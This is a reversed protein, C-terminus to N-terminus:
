TIYILQQYILKEEDLLEIIYVGSKLNERSLTFTKNDIKISKILKGEITRIKIKDIYKEGIEIKTKESFPNPYISLENKSTNTVNSINYSFVNSFSSCGYINFGEVIYLGSSTPNIFQSNSNNILTGNLYWNYSSYTSDAGLFLNNQIINPQDPIPYFNLTLDPSQMVCNNHNTVEVNYTGSQYITITDTTENNSWNFNNYTESTYLSVADGICLNSNSNTEIQVNDPISILVSDIFQCYNADTIIAQYNTTIQPYVTVSNNNSIVNNNEIWEIQDVGNPVFRIGENYAGWYTNNRGPSEFARDGINNQIGQVATYCTDKNTTQIEIINSNEYIIIDFNNGGGCGYHPINDFKIILRKNPSTGQTQYTITGGASPNFDEWSSFIANKPTNTNSNPIMTAGYSTPQGADFSIWGNSGIYFEDFQQGFFYFDFGIQFPGQVDDDGLSVNNIPFLFSMIPPSHNINEFNYYQTTILNSFTAEINISDNPCIEQDSTLSAFPNISSSIIITDYSHYSGCHQYLTDTVIVSYTGPNNVVIDQTTEGTNWLYSSANNYSASINAQGGPCLNNSGQNIVIQNNVEQQTLTVPVASYNNNENSEIFDNNVDVEGVIWYDGNCTGPPIDIWMGDLTWGYVDVYGVSIGQEIPSCGFNGGGLGYNNGWYSIPLVSGQGVITNDDRCCGGGCTGLDMLCFGVKAGNGIIPWNLPNPDNPNETRLTFSVWSDVHNHGHTPHYTMTGAQYEVFSMVGNSDKSYIRQYLIQSPDINTNHWCTVSQTSNPDFISMTDGLSSVFTRMGNQDVGRLVFPGFGVNPTCASLRLRGDNNNCPPNCIQPFEHNDNLSEWSIQLDPLLDCETQTSDACRCGIGNTVTCPLQSYTNINLVFCM